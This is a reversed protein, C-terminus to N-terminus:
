TLEPATADDGVAFFRVVVVAADAVKSPAAHGNDAVMFIKSTSRNWHASIVAAATHYSGAQSVAELKIYDVNTLGFANEGGFKDVALGAAVYLGTIEGVVLTKTNKQVGNVDQGGGLSQRYLTKVQIDGNAM